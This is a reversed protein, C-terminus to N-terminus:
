QCLHAFDEEFSGGGQRLMDHKEPDYDEAFGEIAGTYSDEDGEPIDEEDLDGNYYIGYSAAHEVAIQWARDDIETETASDQVLLPYVCDTGVQNTSCHVVMKRMKNEKIM